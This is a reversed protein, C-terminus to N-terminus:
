LLWDIPLLSLLSVRIRQWATTGPETDHRVVRDERQELWYTQGKASLRVEYSLGPASEEILDHVRKTM